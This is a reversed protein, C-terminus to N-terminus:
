PWRHCSRLLIGCVFTLPFVRIFHAKAVDVRELVFLLPHESIYTNIIILLTPHCVWYYLLFHNLYQFCLSLRLETLPNGRQKM